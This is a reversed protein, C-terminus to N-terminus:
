RRGTSPGMASIDERDASRLIELKTQLNAGAFNSQYAQLRSAGSEQASLGVNLILLFTFATVIIRYRM